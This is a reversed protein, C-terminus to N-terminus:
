GAVSPPETLTMEIGLGVLYKKERNLDAWTLPNREAWGESVAISLRRGRARCVIGSLAPDTRSRNFLVSLRLVTALRKIRRSLSRSVDAFMKPDLKGRHAGVLRALIRQEETPFGPMNAHELLYAGHQEYHSHAIHLGIEHLRV